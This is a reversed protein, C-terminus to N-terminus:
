PHVKKLYHEKSGDMVSEFWNAATDLCENSVALDITAHEQLHAVGNRDTPYRFVMSKPDISEFDELFREIGDLQAPSIEPYPAKAHFRELYPRLKAWNKSLGHSLSPKTKTGEIDSFYSVLHKISLEYGQRYIFAFPYIAIDIFAPNQEIRNWVYRATEFYGAAYDHFDYPGGNNGVAAIFCHSAQSKAAQFLDDRNYNSMDDHDSM